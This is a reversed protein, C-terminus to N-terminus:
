KFNRSETRLRGLLHSLDAVRKAVLNCVMGERQWRGEVALLRAGLLTQRHDERVDKWVIVQTVGHEDELTIFLTGKATPPQQRLTVIGATRVVRGDPTRRLQQSTKLKHRDLRPRLLQMPHSRLTLGTSAYDWLVEEGEPAEPLELLTEDVSAQALLRPPAHLAAADWVQQRRHGSLTALAGAAALAKMEPQDLGCRQALEQASDFPAKQREAEIAQASSSRLSAIMRLGLRVAPHHDIDELTCDVASHMVDVPRVEVGHRRADQTLQSASYFGMPQSNLLAALFAAPEHRKIWSSAYVLLAFSAAHSEPFGYESFGKIQEFIQEAFSREYGRALMGDVLKGHYKELGGKRKWAAMARRLGDAEGPTFGAAIMAIQMVQEQFVPVGMTRGLAEKLADNPYTVPELGQRRRLYPHVMGGQIPGPRVIAVEVVLDYFEKPRLRPLMSMQARSEIQFVGITDARSIMEYTAPDEAPIDQMSFDFGRRRSIFDLARRIASLMGLALVDVKLLGAADLDDKDWEIVTREAMSANEVPVMRCLLGRTLVFGGTHQSLHRPFGILQETLAILQQVALTDTAIGLEEFRELRISEGDFWQQGKAIADLTDLEFGLAKGVDRIASRPRYSTVAAALAARDRGYKGYLYQIVEERRQHEFDIDIDPPENRERSIFREFLVSMRAPDVETVGLCYCVVSNAASGRGQCLIGRSRAFLVIDYVTLFYPEYKLECILELEHEIQTQVPTPIGEPWRRGAGEYTAQRLYSAATHGAPVVEDPYQYRLEDLSFRCRAAVQLTQELLDPTFTQALRLRSRLHREASRLLAYGCETLPRGIRTATLVDQLPKRSRVHMHVDGVAVLPLATLASLERMRHLWLEDDLRRALDVGIWCRGTFETLTWRGMAELQAGSAQREPCLLVVCNELEQGTINDLDLFYTGKDSARRLKTIFQCLNGYGDLNQALVVLTFPAEDESRPQICFQAGVLLAIGEQKAAVHARVIGALSCEDTLALAGYGLAKARKVLEDPQSAGRLFTFNSICRLEAYAPLAHDM